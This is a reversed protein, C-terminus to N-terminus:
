VAARAHEPDEMVEQQQFWEYTEALATEFDTSPRWGLARLASLDLVKRPMGDPNSVDFELRGRYGVVGTVARAVEAISLETGSGINIPAPGEYHRMVFLSAHALDRAYIFDRRPSGTGWITLFPDQQLKAEHARRLLAPIVHGSDHSFDDNPGFVNAPFATLFCAGYQQRFAECLNWGALKAAAYAANTPELPGTLLSEIRLPQPAQKPYCCASALYLLKKVGHRHACDIVHATVLLNDLMLEAPRTRNLQIGGSKGAALFVLEPRAEGFFDEVQAAVTLDPEDPPAGVIDRHGSERLRELIAAGALTRGGAVFIRAHPNM